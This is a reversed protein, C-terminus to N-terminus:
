ARFARSAADYVERTREATQRWSFQRARALAQERKMAFSEPAEAIAALTQALERSDRADVHVAAGGSVELIAPDRSAVVLSGCQMAELVPLGFGEYLSPYVVARAASYLRPLDSEPVAGLIRLGPEAAPPAFDARLRGAIVLEVDHTKRVERWADILCAVNKRRELTGVLLFYPAAAPETDVPRFHDSAALPVAVVRDAALRFRELAASRVAESPTIVM